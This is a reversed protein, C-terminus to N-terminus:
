REGWKLKQRLVDFFEVGNQNAIEAGLELRLDFLAPNRAADFKRPKNGLLFLEPQKMRATDKQHCAPKFARRTHNGLSEGALHRDDGIANLRIM